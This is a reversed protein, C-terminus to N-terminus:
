SKRMFSGISIILAVGGLAIAAYAMGKTATNSSNTTSTNITTSATSVEHLIGCAAPATAEMPLTPDLDSMINGDYKGDPQISDIGHIVVASQGSRIQQAQDATLLFTRDYGSNNAYTPYRTIALTSAPSTDGSTTLSTQVPGYFPGGETTSVVGDGNADASTSPCEHAATTGFHVHQAHPANVLNNAIIHFHGNGASDISVTVDGTVNSKNLPNLVAQFQQSGYSQSNSAALVMAGSGFSVLGVAALLLGIKRISNSLYKM